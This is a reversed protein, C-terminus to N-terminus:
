KRILKEAIDQWSDTPSIKKTGTSIKKDYGHQMLFADYEAANEVLGANYLKRSVTGSDDGGSIVIEIYSHQNANEQAIEIIETTEVETEQEIQTEAETENEIETTGVTEAESAKAEDLVSAIQSEIEEDRLIVPETSSEETESSVEESTETENDVLTPEEGFGYEKMVAVRADAVASRTYAGMIAATIIVGIGLGRLMYKFKM